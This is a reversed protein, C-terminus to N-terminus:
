YDYGKIIFEGEKNSLWKDIYKQAAERTAFRKAHEFVNTREYITHVFMTHFCKSGNILFPEGNHTVVTTHEIIFYHKMITITKFQQKNKNSPAFTSCKKSIHM